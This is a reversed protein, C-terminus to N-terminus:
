VYEVVMGIVGFVCLTGSEIARPVKAIRCLVFALFLSSVVAVVKSAPSGVSGVWAQTAACVTMSAVYLATAAICVEYNEVVRYGPCTLLLPCDDKTRQSALDLLARLPLLASLSGILSIAIVGDSSNLRSLIVYTIVLAILSCAHLCPVRPDSWSAVGSLAHRFLLSTKSTCASTWVRHRKTRRERWESMVCSAVVAVCLALQAGEARGSGDHLFHLWAFLLFVPWSLIFYRLTVGLMITSSSMLVAVASMDQISSVFRRQSAIWANWLFLHVASGLARGSLSVEPDGLVLLPSLLAEPISALPVLAFGVLLVTRQRSRFFDRSSRRYSTLMAWAIRTVSFAPVGIM